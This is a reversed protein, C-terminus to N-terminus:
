CRSLGLVALEDQVISWLRPASAGDRHDFWNSLLEDRAQRHAGTQGMDRSLLAKTLEEPSQILPGPLVKLKDDFLQRSRSTYATHDPRYLLIPRQLHLYDFMVSSYDTVLASTRRLLPYVDTNPAVFSVGPLAPRLKPILGQEVPHLNVILMHGARDIAQALGPLGADLLWRGRDADRFTPAYIVVRRGAKLAAGARDFVERDVNTLDGEDPERYLVDNRPYGIPAYRDFAFWRRWEAEGQATTGVMRAFPGCTALVRGLHPGLARGDPLNRLGIEKISVGHWLQIHRAGALLAAAYPNPNLLHDSTIVVAASLVVHLHEPSWHTHDHPLCRGGLAEIQAQQRAHYPLFWCQVGESEARERLGLWAYKVNDGFYLTGVFVLTREKAHMTSVKSLDRCAREVSLQHELELVKSQLSRLETASSEMAGKLDLVATVVEEIAANVQRGHAEIADLRDDVGLDVPTMAPPISPPLLTQM